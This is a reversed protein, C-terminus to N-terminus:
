ALTVNLAIDSFIEKNQGALLRAIANAHTVRWISVLPPKDTLQGSFRRHGSTEAEEVRQRQRGANSHHVNSHYKM